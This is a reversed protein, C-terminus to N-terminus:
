WSLLRLFPTDIVVCRTTQRSEMEGWVDGRRRQTIYRHGTVAYRQCSVYVVSLVRFPAPTACETVVAQISSAERCGTGYRQLTLSATTEFQSARCAVSRISIHVDMLLVLMRKKVDHRWSRGGSTCAM